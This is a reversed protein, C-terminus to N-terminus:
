ALPNSGCLKTVKYKTQAPQGFGGATVKVQFSKAAKPACSYTLFRRIQTRWDDLRAVDAAQNWTSTCSAVTLTSCSRTWWAFWAYPAGFHAGYTYTGSAYISDPGGVTLVPGSAFSPPDVKESTPDNSCASQVAVLAGSLALLVALRRGQFRQM